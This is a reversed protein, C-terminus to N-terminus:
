QEANNLLDTDWNTVMDHEAERSCVRVLLFQNHQQFCKYFAVVQEEVKGGDEGASSQGQPGPQGFSQLSSYWTLPWPASKGLVPM